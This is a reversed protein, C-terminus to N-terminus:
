RVILRFISILAVLFWIVNIIAPQYDKKYLTEIILGASGTINLLIYTRSLPSALGFGVIIYATIIAIVGYWGLIEVSVPITQKPTSNGKRM